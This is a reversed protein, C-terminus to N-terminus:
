KSKLFKQTLNFIFDESDMASIQWRKEYMLYLFFFRYFCSFFNLILLVILWDFVDQFRKRNLAWNRQSCSPMLLQPRYPKLESQFKNLENCLVNTFICDKYEFFVSPLFFIQAYIFIKETVRWLIKLVNNAILCDNSAKLLPLFFIQSYLSFSNFSNCDIVNVSREWHFPLLM